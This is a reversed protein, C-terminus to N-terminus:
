HIAQWDLCSLSYSEPRSGLKPLVEYLPKIALSASFDVPTLISVLRKEMLPIDKILQDRCGFEAISDSGCLQRVQSAVVAILHIHHNHEESNIKCVLCDPLNFINVLTIAFSPQM